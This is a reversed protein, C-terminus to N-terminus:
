KRLFSPVRPRKRIFPKRKEPAQIKNTKIDKEGESLSEAAIADFLSSAKKPDKSDAFRDARAKDVVFVKKGNVMVTETATRRGEETSQPKSIKLEPQKKRGKFTGFLGLKSSSSKLKTEGQKGFMSRKKQEKAIEPLAESYQEKLQLTKKNQLEENRLNYKSEKEGYDRLKEESLTNDKSALDLKELGEQTRENKRQEETAVYKVKEYESNDQLKKDQAKIEELKKDSNELFSDVDRDLDSKREGIKLSSSSSAPRSAEKFQRSEDRDSSSITGEKGDQSLGPPYRLPKKEVKDKGSLIAQNKERESSLEKIRRDSREVMGKIVAVNNKKSDVNARAKELKRETEKKEDSSFMSKEVSRRIREESPTEEAFAKSKLTLKDVKKQARARENEASKLNKRASKSSKEEDRLDSDIKKIENKVRVRDGLSERTQRGKIRAEENIRKTEIEQKESTELEPSVFSDLRDRKVESHQKKMQSVTRNTEGAATQIISPMSMTPESALQTNNVAFMLMSSATLVLFIKKMREGKIVM